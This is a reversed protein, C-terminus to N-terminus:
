SRESAGRPVGTFSLLKGSRSAQAVVADIMAVASEDITAVDSLDVVVQGVARDLVHEIVSRVVRCRARNLEGHPQILCSHDQHWRCSVIGEGQRTTMADM